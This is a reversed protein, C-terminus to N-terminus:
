IIVNLTDLAVLAVLAVLADMATSSLPIDLAEWACMAFADLTEAASLLAVSSDGEPTEGGKGGCDGNSCGNDSLVKLAEARSM